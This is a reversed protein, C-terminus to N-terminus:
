HYTQQSSGKNWWNAPVRCIIWFPRDLKRIIKCLHASQSIQMYYPIMIGLQGRETLTLQWHINQINYTAQVVISIENEIETIKMWQVTDFLLNLIKTSKSLLFFYGHTHQIGVAQTIHMYFPIKIISNRERYLVKLCLKFYSFLFSSKFTTRM